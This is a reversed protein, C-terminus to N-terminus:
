RYYWQSTGCTDSGVDDVCVQYQGRSVRSSGPTSFTRDETGCGAASGNGDGRRAAWSTGDTRGQGYVGNGDGANDCISGAVTFGGNLTFQPQLKWSGSFSGENRNSTKLDLPGGAFAATGFGAAIALGAVGTAVISKTRIRM